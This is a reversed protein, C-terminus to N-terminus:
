SKVVTATNVNRRPIGEGGEVELPTENWTDPVAEISRTPKNVTVPVKVRVSNATVSGLEPGASGPQRQRQASRRRRRPDPNRPRQLQHLM